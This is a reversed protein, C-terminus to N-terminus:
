NIGLDDEFSINKGDINLYASPNKRCKGKKYCTFYLVILVIVIIIVAFVISIIIILTKGEEDEYEKEKEEETEEFEPCNGEINIKSNNKFICTDCNMYLTGKIEFEKRSCTKCLTYCKDIIGKEKDLVYYGDPLANLCDTQEYNAYKDCNLCNKNKEYFKFPSSCSLCNMYTTNIEKTNCTYCDKYCPYFQKTEEDFYYRSEIKDFCNRTNNIFYFGPKCKLCSQNEIDDSIFLCEECNKFCKPEIKNLAFNYTFIKGMFTKLTYDYQTSNNPYYESKDDINIAIQESPEKVIGAFSISYNGYIANISPTFRLESSVKITDNIKILTYSDKYNVFGGVKYTDPLNLIKVGLIEYGFLNNEIGLIYDSVRLNERKEILDFTGKELPVDNATVIFGFTLFAAKGMEKNNSDFELLAGLFGNLNYGLVNGNLNINYLNFNIHYYRVIVKSFKFIRLSVVLLGTNIDELYKDKYTKILLAFTDNDLKCLNNSFVNGKFYYNLEENIAISPVDEIVNALENYNNIFTKFLIQIINQSTSYAIIFNTNSEDFSLMDDLVQKEPMFYNDLIFNKKLEFTNSDFLSLIHNNIFSQEDILEM